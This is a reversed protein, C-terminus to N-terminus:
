GAAAAGGPGRGAADPGAAPRGARRARGPGPAAAPRPRARRRRRGGSRGRPGPRPRASTTPAACRGPTAPCGGPAWPRRRHGPRCGAARGAPGPQSREGAAGVPQRDQRPHDGHEVRQPGGPEARQDVVEGGAADRDLVDGGLHLPDPPDRQEVVDAHAVGAVAGVVPRQQAAHALLVDPGVVLVEVAGGRPHARRDPAPQALGQGVVGVLLRQDPRLRLLRAAVPRQALQQGPGALRQRRDLRAPRHARQDDGRDQRGAAPEVHHDEVLRRLDRGRLGDRRDRAAGLDDDGAVLPLQGRGAEEGGGGVVLPDAGVVVREGLAELRDEVHQGGRQRHAAEGPVVARQVLPQDGEGVLLHVVARQDGERPGALLRDQPQLDHVARRRHLRPLVGDLGGGGLDVPHDREDELVGAGARRLGEADDGQPDGVRGADLLGHPRRQGRRGSVAPNKSSAAGSRNKTLFRSRTWPSSRSATM